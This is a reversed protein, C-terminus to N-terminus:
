WNAILIWNLFVLMKSSGRLFDTEGDMLTMWGNSDEQKVCTDCIQTKVDPNPYQCYRLSLIQTNKVLKKGLGTGKFHM